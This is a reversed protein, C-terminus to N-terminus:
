TIREKTYTVELSIFSFIHICIAFFIIEPFFCGFVPHPCSESYMRQYSVVCRALWYSPLISVSLPFSLPFLSRFYVASLFTSIAIPCLSHLISIFQPFQSDLPSSLSKWFNFIECLRSISSEFIPNKASISHSLSKPFHLNKRLHSLYFDFLIGSKEGLTSRNKTILFM